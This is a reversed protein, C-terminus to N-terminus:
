KALKVGYIKLNLSVTGASGTTIAAYVASTGNKYVEYIRDGSQHDYLMVRSTSSTVAFYEKTVVISERVNSYFCSQIILLDYDSWACSYSTATAPVSAAELIRDIQLALNTYGDYPTTM